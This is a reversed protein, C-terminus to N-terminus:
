GNLIEYPDWTGNISKVVQSRKLPSYKGRMCQSHAEDNAAFVTDLKKNDKLTAFLTDHPM